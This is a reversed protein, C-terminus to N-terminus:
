GGLAKLVDLARPLDAAPDPLKAEISVRGDYGGAKLAEFFPAFDYEELGPAMRNAVTGVHVHALLGGNAVIDEASDHDTGWHYSDVLLRIARHDVERVLAACEGVTTLVNCAGQHLPEVAVTVGHAAAIPGLMRGFDVLQGWAANRDFGDPINRAGGSGFVIVPVGAQEARGCATTAYEGLAALDADPGTIKLDGPVFRNVAACFLPVQRVQARADQFAAPDERPKLFDPVGWEFFGYGADAAMRAMEPGGCVGYEM